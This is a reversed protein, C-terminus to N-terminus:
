CPSLSYTARSQFVPSGRGAGWNPSFRRPQRRQPPQTGCPARFGNVALPALVPAPPASCEWASLFVSRLPTNRERSVFNKSKQAPCSCSLTGDRDGAVPAEVAETKPDSESSKLWAGPRSVPAPRPKGSRRRTRGAGSMGPFLDLGLPLGLFYWSVGDEQGRQSTGRLSPIRQVETQGPTPIIAAHNAAPIHITRLCGAAIRASCAEGWFGSFEFLIVFCCNISFTAAL